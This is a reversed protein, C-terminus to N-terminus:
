YSMLIIIYVKLRIADGTVGPLLMSAKMCEGLEEISKFNKDTASMTIAKRSLLGSAVVKLVLQNKTQKEWFVEWNLPKIEQIVKELLFKLNLVPSGM